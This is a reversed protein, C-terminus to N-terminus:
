TLRSRIIKVEPELEIGFQRQVTERIHDMVAMVDKFTADGRNVVFGAHKESVMAGGVTFGKLGAQEILAAAYGEKPRKFTSGASPLNLPQSERRKIALADMRGKIEDADGKELKLVSSLIVDESDSFRSHRYSFDHADGTIEFHAADPTLATTKIVTNKMEGGYAGANMSVAGGLTGPIGHAFELGTLGHEMAFVALKSLLVGSEATIDTEGSKEIKNLCGSTKIVVIDLPGDEVLLNTGNGVILPKVAFRHLIRILAAVENQTKPFFMATVNGGIKFSTHKKMPEGSRCEIEPLQERITGIAESIYNM